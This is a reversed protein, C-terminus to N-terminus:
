SIYHIMCLPHLDMEKFWNYIHKLQTALIYFLFAWTITNYAENNKKKEQINNIYTYILAIKLHKYHHSGSKHTSFCWKFMNCLTYHVENNPQHLM